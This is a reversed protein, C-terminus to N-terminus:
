GPISIDGGKIGSTIVGRIFYRQTAFFVVLSPLLALIFMVIIKNWEFGAKTTDKAIQLAISIPYTSVSSIYVFPSMFDNM